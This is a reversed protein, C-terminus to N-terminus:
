EEDLSTFVIVDRYDCGARRCQSSTALNHRAHFETMRHGFRRCLFRNWAYVFKKM